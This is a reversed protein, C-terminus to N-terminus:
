KQGAKLADALGNLTGLEKGAVASSGRIWQIQGDFFSGGPCNHTDLTMSGALEAPVPNTASGTGTLSGCGAGPVSWNIGSVSATGKIDFTNNLVAVTGTLSGGSQTLIMISPVSLGSTFWIGRWTGAVQLLSQQETPSHGGGGGSCGVLAAIVCLEVLLKRMALSRRLTIGLNNGVEGSTDM